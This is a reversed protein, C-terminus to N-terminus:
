NRQASWGDLNQVEDFFLYAQQGKAALANFRAMTVEREFWDSIRLIPEGLRRLSDLEDFQVRLISTPPVGEDLLDSIIQYQATTKGVQRPGRAVIIPALGAELRRRIQGVLHRRMRPQPPMPAYEWWPNLRRLDAILQSSLGRDIFSPRQSGAIM